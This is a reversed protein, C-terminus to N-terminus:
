SAPSLTTLVVSSHFYSALIFSLMDGKVKFDKDGDDAKCEYVVSCSSLSSEMVLAGEDPKSQVELSSQIGDEYWCTQVAPDSIEGHM